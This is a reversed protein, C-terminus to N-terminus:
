GYVHDRIIRIEAEEVDDMIRMFSGFAAGSATAAWHNHVVGLGTGPAICGQLQDAYNAKHIHIATRGDPVDAVEYCPYDDRPDPTSIHHVAPILRYTGEPICSVFRKNDEWPKEIAFCEYEGDVNLRGFTGLPTYAFRVLEIIKV